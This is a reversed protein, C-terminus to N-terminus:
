GVGGDHLIPIEPFRREWMERLEYPFEDLSLFSYLDWEYPDDGEPKDLPVPLENLCMLYAGEPLEGREILALAVEARATHFADVLREFVPPDFAIEETPNMSSYFSM